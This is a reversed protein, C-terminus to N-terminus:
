LSAWPIFSTDISTLFLRRRSGSGGPFTIPEVLSYPKDFIVWECLVSGGGHVIWTSDDQGYFWKFDLWKVFHSLGLRLDNLKPPFQLHSKPLKKKLQSACIEYPSLKTSSVHCIICHTACVLGVPNADQHHLNKIIQYFLKRLSKIQSKATELLSDQTLNDAWTMLQTSDDWSKCSPQSM